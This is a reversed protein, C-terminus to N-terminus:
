ASVTSNFLIGFAELLDATARLMGKSKGLFSFDEGPSQVELSLKPKSVKLVPM